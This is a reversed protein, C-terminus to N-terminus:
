RVVYKKGGIIYLGSPLNQLADVRSINRRILIGRIDYVDVPLQENDYELTDVKGEGVVPVFTGPYYCTARVDEGSVIAWYSMVINGDEDISATFPQPDEQLKNDLYWDGVSPYACMTYNVLITQPQFTIKSTEPDFEGVLDGDEQTFFNNFTLTNGEATVTIQHDSLDIIQWDTANESGFPGLDLASFKTADYTGCLKEAASYDEVVPVFTGPYYCTARVDEGSVIAWYSMVINGDEDISATFPQPDEQLKNDLYWDGVSPYACMTYNVLITQPQFTIKSTEPDFVGILDGDEQTFFNNFTLTNGEATVTIQHDSLDVIQWDTANESGFPGLDLAFFKTADYKGCIDDATLASAQFPILALLALVATLFTKM